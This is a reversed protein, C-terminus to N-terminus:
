LRALRKALQLTQADSLPAALEDLRRGLEARAEMDTREADYAKAVAAVKGIYEDTLNM